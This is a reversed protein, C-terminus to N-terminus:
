NDYTYPIINSCNWIGIQFLGDAQRSPSMVYAIGNLVYEVIGVADYWDSIETHEKIQIISGTKIEFQNNEAGVMMTELELDKLKSM